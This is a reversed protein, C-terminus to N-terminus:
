DMSVTYSGPAIDKKYIIGDMDDDSWIVTKKDPGTVTVAFPVNAVLKETKQNIFKIKLDRQISTMEMKVTVEKTYETEDYGGQSDKEEEEEIITVAAAKALQADAVALLGQEGILAIGDLQNGVNVFDSIQNEVVKNSVFVSGLIIAMVLVGIGTCM